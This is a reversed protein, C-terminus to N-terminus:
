FDSFKKEYNKIDNLYVIEINEVTQIFDKKKKDGKKWFGKIEFYKQLKPSWFDPTYWHSKGNDDFWNFQHERNWISPKIWDGDIKDLIAAFRKEYSGQVKVKHGNKKIIEYWSCRGGRNNLSIKQKAKESQIKGKMGSNKRSVTHTSYYHKLTKTFRKSLKDKNIINQYSVNCSRSCFKRNKKITEFEVNCYKCQILIKFNKTLTKSVKENIEKRKAKSSFGRACKVSCFRGSAYIGSHELDCNECKLM